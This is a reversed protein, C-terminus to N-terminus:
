SATAKRPLRVHVRYGRSPRPGLEITGGLASVRERMRVHGLGSGSANAVPLGNDTVELEADDGLRVVVRAHDATSHRRVNTLAEQAIRLLTSGQTPTLGDALSADGVLEYTVQFGDTSADECLAELAQLSGGVDESSPVDRLSGLLSRLESVASRSMDEVAVLAETALDPKAAMARRAAATQIGILSIHHAVSDHLDRAIRLREALVAQQALQGAQAQVLAQSEALRAADRAQRWANAGLWMAAGFYAANLLVTALYYWGNPQFEGPTTARAYSDALVLWVTMALLIAGVVLALVDRRKAYAMATYLGLFYMVQMSMFSAILPWITGAAIFHVGTLLVMSLLPYVRRYALLVVAILIAGLNPWVDVHEALEEVDAYALVLAATILGLLAAVGLDTISPHRPTPRVFDNDLGFFGRLADVM